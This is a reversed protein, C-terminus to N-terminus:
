NKTIIKRATGNATSVEIFYNGNTLKAINVSNNAHQTIMKKGDLSYITIGQIMEKSSITILENSPNPFVNFEVSEISAISATNQYYIYEENSTFLTGGGSTEQLTTVRTSFNDADYYFNHGQLGFLGTQNETLLYNSANYTYDIRIAETSAPVGSAVLMGVFSTLNAGTYNYAVQFLWVMPTLPNGDDDASYKLTSPNNGSYTYEMLQQAEFAIGDPSDFSIFRNVNDSTGLYGLTDTSSIEATGSPYIYSNEVILRDSGDYFYSDSLYPVFIGGGMDYEAVITSIKGTGTYTYLIRDGADSTASTVQYSGNYVKTTTLYLVTNFYSDSSSYNPDPTEWTWFIPNSLLPGCYMVSGQYDIYSHASSDLGTVMGSEDYYYRSNATIKKQSFSMASVLLAIFLLTKKM